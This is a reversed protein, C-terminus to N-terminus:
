WSIKKGIRSARYWSSQSIGSSQYFHRKFNPFRDCLQEEGTIKLVMQSSLDYEEKITSFIQARHEDNTVLECYKEAVEMDVLLLTKEAGDLILRFLSHKEYMQNLLETGLVGRIKILQEMAAVLEM